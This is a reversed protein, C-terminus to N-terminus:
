FNGVEIVVSLKVVVVIIIVVAVDILASAVVIVVLVVSVIMVGTRMRSLPAYLMFAPNEPISKSGLDTM